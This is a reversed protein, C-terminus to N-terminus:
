SRTENARKIYDVMADSPGGSKEVAASNEERMQYYSDRLGPDGGHFLELLEMWRGALRQVEPDGPDVEADIKAQVAAILQPWEAITENLRDSGVNEHHRRLDALQQDTFYSNFTKEM